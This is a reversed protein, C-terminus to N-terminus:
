EDEGELVFDNDMLESGDPDFVDYGNDATYLHNNIHKWAKMDYEGSDPGPPNWTPLSIDVTYEGYEDARSICEYTYEKFCLMTSCNEVPNTGHEDQYCFGTIGKYNEQASAMVIFAIILGADGAESRLAPRALGM